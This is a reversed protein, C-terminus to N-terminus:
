DILDEKPIVIYSGLNTATFSRDLVIVVVFSVNSM